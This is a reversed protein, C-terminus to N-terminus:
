VWDLGRAQRSAFNWNYSDIYKRGFVFHMAYLTLHFAARRWTPILDQYEADYFGAKDFAEYLFRYAYALRGGHPGHRRMVEFMEAAIADGGKSTKNTASFYYRSLPESTSIMPGLKSLRCWFEWDFAYTLSEDLEGVALHASARWLTSPQEITNIFSLMDSFEATPTTLVTRGDSFMRRCGGTALIAEPAAELAGALKALAGVELADDACLWTRYDGSAICFGKNIANAQGADPESVLTSFWGKHAELWERTGDTSAGDIVIIETDVGRQARVSEVARAVTSAANFTPLVLSIRPDAM